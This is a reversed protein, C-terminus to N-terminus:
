VVPINKLRTKAHSGMSRLKSMVMVVPEQILEAASYMAVAAAFMIESTIRKMKGMGITTLNCTGSLCFIPRMNIKPTPEM